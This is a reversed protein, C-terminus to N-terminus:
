NSCLGTLVPSQAVAWVLSADCTRYSIRIPRENENLACKDLVSYSDRGSEPLSKFLLVKRCDALLPPFYGV